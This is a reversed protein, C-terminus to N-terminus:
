FIAPVKETALIGKFCYLAHGANLEIGAGLFPYFLPTFCACFILRPQYDTLFRGEDLLKEQEPVHAPTFAHSEELRAIEVRIENQPHENVPLLIDGEDLRVAQQVFARGILFDQEVFPDLTDLLTQIVWAHNEVAKNKGPSPVQLQFSVVGLVLKLVHM